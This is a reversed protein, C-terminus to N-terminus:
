RIRRKGKPIPVIIIADRDFGLNKNQFYDMQKILVLTGIILLQSIFFQFVVLVRRLYYGSSNRNSIQNKLAEVAKFGSVVFLHTFDPYCLSRM